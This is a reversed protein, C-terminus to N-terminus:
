LMSTKDDKGYAEERAKVIPMLIGDGKDGEGRISYVIGLHVSPWTLDLKTAGPLDTFAKLSQHWANLADTEQAFRMYAMGSENYAEALERVDEENNHKEIREIIMAIWAKCNVLAQGNDTEVGAITQYQYSDSLLKTLEDADEPHKDLCGQLIVHALSAYIGIKLARAREVM